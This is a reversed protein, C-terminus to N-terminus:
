LYDLYAEVIDHVQSIAQEDDNGYVERVRAALASKLTAKAAELQPGDTDPFDRTEERLFDSAFQNPPPPPASPAFDEIAIGDIYGQVAAFVRWIVGESCVLNGREICRAFARVIEAQLLTTTRQPLSETLAWTTAVIDGLGLNADRLAASSVSGLGCWNAAITMGRDGARVQDDFGYTELAAQIHSMGIFERDTEAMWSPAGQAVLTAPEAGARLLDLAACPEVGPRLLKRLYNEVPELTPADPLSARLEILRDISALVLEQRRGGLLGQEPVAGNAHELLEAFHNARLASPTDQLARKWAGLREPTAQPAIALAAMMPAVDPSAARPSPQAEYQDDGQMDGRQECRSRNGQAATHDARTNTQPQPTVSTNIPNM